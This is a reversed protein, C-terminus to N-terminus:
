DEKSKGLMLPTGPDGVMVCAAWLWALSPIGDKYPLWFVLVAIPANVLLYVAARWLKIRWKSMGNIM